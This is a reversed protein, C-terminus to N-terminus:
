NWPRGPAVKMIMQQVNPTPSVNYKRMEALIEQLLAPSQFSAQYAAEFLSSFMSTLLTPNCTGAVQKSLSLAEQIWEANAEKALGKILISCTFKDPKLGSYRMVELMNWAEKYLGGRVLADMITNYTICNPSLGQTKMQALVKYAGDPQGRLAYGKLITNYSIVDAVGAQLALEAAEELRDSAVGTALAVNLALSDLAVGLHKMELITKKSSPWDQRRSHVRLVTMCARISPTTVTCLRNFFVVARELEGVEVAFSVLCSCTVSSPTLGDATLSDYVMLAKQYQRQGALLKMTIEYFTITREVDQSKMDDLLKEVLGFRGTRIVCHMLSTYLELARVAANTIAAPLSLDEDALRQLLDEYLQLVKNVNRSTSQDRADAIIEGVLASFDVNSFPRPFRRKLLGPTPPVKAKPASKAIKVDEKPRGFLRRLAFAFSLTMVFIALDFKILGVVEALPVFLTLIMDVSSSSISM